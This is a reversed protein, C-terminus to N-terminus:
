HGAGEGLVTVAGALLILPQPGSRRETAERDCPRRDCRGVVVGYLWTAPVLGGDSYRRKASLYYLDFAYYHLTM